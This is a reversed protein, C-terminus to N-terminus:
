KAKGDLIDAYLKQFNTPSGYMCTPGFDPTSKVGQSYHDLSDDPKIWWSWKKGKWYRGIYNPQGKEDFEISYGSYKRWKTKYVVKLTSDPYYEFKDFTQLLKAKDAQGQAINFLFSIIITWIFKM